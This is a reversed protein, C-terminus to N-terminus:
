GLPVKRAVDPGEMHLSLYRRVSEPLADKIRDTDTENFEYSRAIRAAVELEYERAAPEQVYLLCDGRRVVGTPDIVFGNRRCEHTFTERQSEPVDHTVSVPYSESLSRMSIYNPHSSALSAIKGTAELIVRISQPITSLDPALSPDFRDTRIGSEPVAFTSGMSAELAPPAPPPTIPASVAPTSNTRLNM